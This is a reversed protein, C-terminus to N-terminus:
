ASRSNTSSSSRDSEREDAYKAVINSLEPILHRNLYKRVTKVRRPKINDLNPLIINIHIKTIGRFSSSYRNLLDLMNVGPMHYTKMGIEVMSGQIGIHMDKSQISYSLGCGLLPNIHDFVERPYRTTFTIASVRNMQRNVKFSTGDGVYTYVGGATFNLFQVGLERTALLHRVIKRINRSAKTQTCSSKEDM